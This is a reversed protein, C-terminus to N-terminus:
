KNKLESRLDSLETELFSRGKAWNERDIEFDRVRKEMQSIVAMNKELLPDKENSFIENTLIVSKLVPTHSTSKDDAKPVKVAETTATHNIPKDGYYNDCETIIGEGPCPVFLPQSHNEPLFQPHVIDAHPPGM